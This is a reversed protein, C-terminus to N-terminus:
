RPSVSRTAGNEGDRPFAVVVRLGGLRSSTEMRLSAKHLDAITKVISLGLGSGSVGSDVDAVRYFRRLVREREGPPIGPGSDEVSLEVRGDVARVEVDILGGPPTYKVANDVLNGALIRLAETSGAVVVEEANALGIDVARAEAAPSADVVAQRAVEDLRVPDLPGSSASIAQQRALALLQEVLHKARDIGARLRGVAHAREEDTGARELGQLQLLLTALPSRLEHAADAVFSNQAEFTRRVRAFLLNLERILPVVETPLGEESVEGLDGPQGSAVQRRVRAIHALAANVVAWAIFMLVPAM